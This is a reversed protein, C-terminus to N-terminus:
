GKLWVLAGITILLYLVSPVTRFPSEKMPLETILEFGARRIGLSWAPCFSVGNGPSLSTEALIIRDAKVWVQTSQYRVPINEEPINMTRAFLSLQQFKCYKIPKGEASYVRYYYEFHRIEGRFTRASTPQDIRVVYWGDYDSLIRKIKAYHNFSM